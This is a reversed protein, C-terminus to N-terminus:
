YHFGNGRVHTFPHGDRLTHGALVEGVYLEHDGGFDCIHLVRCELVALADALAPVAIGTPHTRVGAFADQDDHVGRAYRKMLSTDEKLVISLAFHESARILEAIRRDRALAVSVAPPAFAAQQVWSALMASASGAHAATLIYVGSPVRGLARAIDLRAPDTHHM